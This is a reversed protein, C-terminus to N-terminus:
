GRVEKIGNKVEQWITVASQIDAQQTSKDGGVTVVLVARSHKGFYVRYGPGFDIRMEYIGGVEKWDGPLGRALKGVNYTITARTKPDRIGALWTSYESLEIVTAQYGQGPAVEFREGRVEITTVPSQNQLAGAGSVKRKSDVM